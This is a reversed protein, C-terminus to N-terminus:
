IQKRRIWDIVPLKLTLYRALVRGGNQFCFKAMIQGIVSIEILNRSQRLFDAIESSQDSIELFKGVISGLIFQLGVKLSQLSLVALGYFLQSLALQGRGRANDKESECHQM